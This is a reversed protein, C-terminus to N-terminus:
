EQPALGLGFRCVDRLIRNVPADVSEWRTSNTVYQHLQLGLVAAMHAFHFSMHYFQAVEFVAAGPSMAIMNALAAGNQSVVVDTRGFERWIGAQPPLADDALVTVDAPLSLLGSRLQEFNRMARQSVRKPLLVRLPVQRGLLCGNHDTSALPMPVKNVDSALEMSAFPPVSPLHVAARIAERGLVLGLPSPHACLVGDPVHAIRARVWGHIVRDRSIGLTELAEIHVPLLRAGKLRSAESIKKQESAQPSSQPPEFTVMVRVAPRDVFYHLVPYLRNVLAEALYHYPNSSWRHTLVLVEDYQPWPSSFDLSVSRALHGCSQVSLGDKSALVGKRGAQTVASIPFATGEPSLIVERLTLIQPIAGSGHHALPMLAHKLAASSRSRIAAALEGPDNDQHGYKTTLVARLTESRDHLVLPAPSATFIANVTERLAFDFATRPLWCAMERDNARHASVADAASPMSLVRSLFPSKICTCGSSTTGCRSLNLALLSTDAGAGVTSRTSMASGTTSTVLFHNLAYFPTISVIGAGLGRRLWEQRETPYKVLGRMTSDYRPELDKASRAMLADYSTPWPGTQSVHTDDQPLVFICIFLFSIGQLFAFAGLLKFRLQGKQLTSLLSFM